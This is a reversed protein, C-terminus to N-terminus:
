VQDHKFFHIFEALIRFAPGFALERQLTLYRFFYPTASQTISYKQKRMSIVVPIRHMAILDRVSVFSTYLGFILTVWAYMTKVTRSPDYKTNTVQCCCLDISIICANIVFKEISIRLM